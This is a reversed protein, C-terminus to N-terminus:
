KKAQVPIDEASKASWASESDGARPSMMHMSSGTQEASEM